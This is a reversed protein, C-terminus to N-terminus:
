TSHVIEMNVMPFTSDLVSFSFIVGLDWASYNYIFLQTYSINLCTTNGKM